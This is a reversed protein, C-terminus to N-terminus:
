RGAELRLSKLYERSKGRVPVQNRRDRQERREDIRKTGEHLVSNVGVRVIGLTANRLPVPPTSRKAVFHPDCLIVVM